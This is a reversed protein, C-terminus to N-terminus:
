TSSRVNVMPTLPTLKARSVPEGKATAPLLITFTSGIGVESQLAIEGGHMHVLRRTIALGLGTGAGRARLDGVQAFDEFIAAQERPAIGPGSDRVAIAVHPGRTEVHVSVKGVRTFKIANGVLNELTQRVRLPDAWAVAREGSVELSL